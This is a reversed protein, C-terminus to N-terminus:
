LEQPIAEEQPKKGNYSDKSPLDAQGLAKDASSLM